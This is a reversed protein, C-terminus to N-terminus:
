GTQGPKDDDKVLRMIAFYSILIIFWEIVGNKVFTIAVFVLLMVIWVILENKQLQM